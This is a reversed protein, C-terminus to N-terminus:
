SGFRHQSSENPKFTQLGSAAWGGRNRWVDGSAPGIPFEAGGEEMVNGLLDSGSVSISVAEGEEGWTQGQAPQFTMRNGDLAIEASDQTFTQGLAQLVISDLDVGTEDIWEIVLTAGPQVAVGDQIPSIFRIEPPDTDVRVIRFFRHSGRIAQVNLSGTTSDTAMPEPTITQWPGELEDAAEVHYLRDPEATWNLIFGDLGDAARVIEGPSYVKAVRLLPFCAALVFAIIKTKM